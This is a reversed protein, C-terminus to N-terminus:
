HSAGISQSHSEHKVICACMQKFTVHQIILMLIVQLSLYLAKKATLTKNYANKGGQQIQSVKYKLSLLTFQACLVYQQFFQTLHLDSEAHATQNCKVRSSYLYIWVAHSVSESSPRAGCFFAEADAIRQTVEHLWFLNLNMQQKVSLFYIEMYKSLLIDSRFCCPIDYAAFSLVLYALLSMIVFGVHHWTQAACLVRSNGLLSALAVREAEITFLYTSVSWQFCHWIFGTTFIVAHQLRLFAHFCHGLYVIRHVSVWKSNIYM